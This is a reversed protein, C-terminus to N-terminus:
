IGAPRRLCNKRQSYARDGSHSQLQQTADSFKLSVLNHFILYILSIKCRSSIVSHVSYFDFIFFGPVIILYDILKNGANLKGAGLYLRDPRPLGAENIGIAVESFALEINLSHMNRFIIEAIYEVM